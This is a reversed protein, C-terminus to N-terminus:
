NGNTKEVLRVERITVQQKTTVIEWNEKYDNLADELEKVALDFLQDNIYDPYQVLSCLADLAEEYEHSQLLYAQLEDIIKSAEQYTRQRTM